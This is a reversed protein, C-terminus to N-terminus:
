LNRKYLAKCNECCKYQSHHCDCACDPTEKPDTASKVIGGCDPLPCGLSGDGDVDPECDGARTVAGCLDCKMPVDMIRRVLDEKPQAARVQLQPRHVM